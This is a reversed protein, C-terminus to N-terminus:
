FLIQIYSGTTHKSVPPHWSGLGWSWQSGEAGSFLGEWGHRPTCLFCASDKQLFPSGDGPWGMWWKRVECSDCQHLRWIRLNFYVWSSPYQWSCSPCLIKSCGKATSAGSCLSGRKYVFNNFSSRRIKKLRRILILFCMINKLPGCWICWFLSDVKVICNLWHFNM